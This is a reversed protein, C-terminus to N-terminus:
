ILEPGCSIAVNLATIRWSKPQSDALDAHDTSTTEEAGM